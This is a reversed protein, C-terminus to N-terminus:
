LIFDRSAAVRQKKVSEVADRYGCYFEDFRASIPLYSKFDGYRLALFQEVEHPVFCRVNQVSTLRRPEFISKPFIEAGVGITICYNSSHFPYANCIKKFNSEVPYFLSIVKYIIASIYVHPRGDLPVIIKQNKFATKLEHQRLLKKIQGRMKEQEIKSDPAGVQYFVDLHFTELNYGKKGVRLMLLRYNKDIDNSTFFFNDSIDRQLAEHLLEKQTIPLLVDVDKDWPVILSKDREVALLSGYATYYTIENKVCIRHFENFIDTVVQQYELIDDFAKDLYEHMEARFEESNM